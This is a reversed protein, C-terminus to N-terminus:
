ESDHKRACRIYEDRCIRKKNENKAHACCTWYVDACMDRTGSSSPVLMLVVLVLGCIHHSNTV